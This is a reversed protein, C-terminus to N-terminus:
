EVTQTIPVTALSTVTNEASSVFAKLALETSTWPTPTANLRHKPLQPNTTISLNLPTKNSSVEALPSHLVLTLITPLPSTSALRQPLRSRTTRRSTSRHKKRANDAM